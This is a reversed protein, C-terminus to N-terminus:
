QFKILIFVTCQKFISIQLSKLSKFKGLIELFVFVRRAVCEELASMGVIRLVFVRRDICFIQLKLKDFWLEKKWQSAVNKVNNQNENWKAEKGIFGPMYIQLSAHLQLKSGSKARLQHVVFKSQLTSCVNKVKIKGYKFVFHQCMKFIIVNEIKKTLEYFIKMWSWIYFCGSYLGKFRTQRESLTLSIM